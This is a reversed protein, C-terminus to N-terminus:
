GLISAGLGLRGQHDCRIPIAVALTPSDALAAHAHGPFETGRCHLLPHLCEKLAFERVRGKACLKCRMRFTEEPQPAVQGSALDFEGCLEQDLAPLRQLTEHLGLLALTCVITGWSNRFVTLTATIPQPPVPLATM